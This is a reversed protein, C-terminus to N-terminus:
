LHTYIQKWNELTAPQSFVFEKGCLHEARSGCTVTDVTKFSITLIGEKTRFCHGIADAYACSINKIKGTLDLDKSSVEKGDQTLLADRVHGIFITYKALARFRQFYEYFVNRLHLYGGGKPLELISDGKFNAGIISAKYRRTAEKECM